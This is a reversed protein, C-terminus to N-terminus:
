SRDVHLPTFVSKEAPTPRTASPTGQILTLPTRPATGIIVEDANRARLLRALHECLAREDGAGREPGAQQTPFGVLEALLQAVPATM